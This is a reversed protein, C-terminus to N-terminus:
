QAAPDLFMLKVTGPKFAYHVRGGAPAPQADALDATVLFVRGNSPDVALTRAGPRTKVDGLSTLTGADSERFGSLTGEGNSSSGLHRVPDFAAADTGRGIPLTQLVHGTDADLVQMKANVCSAFLRRTKQDVALRHPSLSDPVAYRAAVRGAALDIAVIEKTSAINVYLHGSGDAAAFEPSGGLPITSKVAKATADIVTASEGDGDLVIVLRGSPDAVVGDADTGAPLTKIATFMRPNYATVQATKGSDAWIAGDAAVAQGQAGTLGALKGLIAGTSADIVDTHDGHAVFVRRSPADFSLYDWRDPAGLAISKSVTYAPAALATHTGLLSLTIAAALRM